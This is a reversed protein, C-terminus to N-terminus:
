HSKRQKKADLHVTKQSLSTQTPINPQYLLKITPIQELIKSGNLNNRTELHKISEPPSSIM